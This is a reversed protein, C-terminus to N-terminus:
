LLMVAYLGDHHGRCIGDYTDIHASSLEATGAFSKKLHHRSGRKGRSIFWRIGTHGAASQIIITLHLYSFVPWRPLMQPSQKQKTVRFRRLDNCAMQRQFRLWPM